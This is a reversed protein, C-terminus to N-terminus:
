GALARLSEFEATTGDLEAIVECYRKWVERLEVADADRRAAGELDRRLLEHRSQIRQHRSELGDLQEWFAGNLWHPEDQKFSANM